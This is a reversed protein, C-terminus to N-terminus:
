YRITPHKYEEIKELIRLEEPILFRKFESSAVSFLRRLSDLPSPTPPTWRQPEDIEALEAAVEIAEEEGGLNDVLGLELAQSGMFLEGTALKEVEEYDMERHSAIHGVFQSYAEDSLDQLLKREDDRLSRQMMDKHEGSKIIQVDIGLKEYLEELNMVTMIVGISGTMTGPQAVIHDASSAIYYGGSAVMDGMSVVVPLQFDDLMASIEQSAAVSGGPSNIRLVVAGVERQEEVSKLQRRVVSPTIAGGGAFGESAEQISGSMILVAIHSDEAAYRNYASSAYLVVASGVALVLISVVIIKKRDM